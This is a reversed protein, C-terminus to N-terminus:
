WRMKPAPTHYAATHPRRTPQADDDRERGPEQRVRDSCEGLGFYWRAPEEVLAQGVAAPGPEGDLVTLAGFQPGRELGVAAYGDEAVRDAAAEIDFARGRLRKRVADQAPVRVAAGGIQQRELVNRLFRALWILRRARRGLDLLRDPRAPPPRCEVANARRQERGVAWEVFVVVVHGGDRTSFGPVRSQSRLSSNKGPRSQAPCQLPKAAAASRSGSGVAGM